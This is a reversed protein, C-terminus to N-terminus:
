VLPPSPCVDFIAQPKEALAERGGAFIALMDFMFGTTRSSFAGTVVPKSSHLLVVYLRYLDGITKPVENCVVATSQADYQPLMEAVKVIRVLDATQSSRHLLTDADLVAVGSSGPDFHVADGGYKVVAQGRRDYLNFQRPVTTLAQLALAEPISVVQDGQDVHAGNDALLERAEASQVKIGPDMLLQFAEELVREVLDESLLEITPKM